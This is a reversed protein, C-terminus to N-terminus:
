FPLSDEDDNSEFETYKDEPLVKGTSLQEPNETPESNIQNPNYGGFDVTVQGTSQINVQPKEIYFGAMKNLMDLAKLKVFANESDKIVDMIQKINDERKIDYQRALKSKVSSLYSQSNPKAIIISAQSKAYDYNNTQYAVMYAKTQNLGNNLYEDLFRQQKGSMRSKVSKKDPTFDENSATEASLNTNNKTFDEM